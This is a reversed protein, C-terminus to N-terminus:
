VSHGFRIVCGDDVWVRCRSESIAGDHWTILDGWHPHRVVVRWLAPQKDCSLVTCDVGNEHNLVIAEPPVYFAAQVNVCGLLHAAQESAPRAFLQEPTDHQVIQGHHLIAMHNAMLAAEAPDHTVLVAPINQQRVLDRVLTQLQGRLATDLSSFPEDLLLLKPQGVLARALAVRQKEGGSLADIGREASRALGVKDLWILAQERAAATCIGRMRLGFAVNQWVNWHPLLAFDQFMMAINRQQPSVDNLRIQNLWIDGSDPQMLGAVMNLLTSKGSGSAGLVALLCGADVQLDINQAVPKGALQKNLQQIHLM